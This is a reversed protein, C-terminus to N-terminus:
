EMAGGERAFLGHEIEMLTTPDAICLAAVAAAALARLPLTRNAGLPAPDRALTRLLFGGLGAATLFVSAAMAFVLAARALHLNQWMAATMVRQAHTENMAHQVGAYALVGVLCVLAPRLGRRPAALFAAAPLALWAVASQRT